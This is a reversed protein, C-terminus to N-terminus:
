ACNVFLHFIAEPTQLMKARRAADEGFYWTPVKTKPHGRHYSVQELHGHDSTVVVATTTPDIRELVAHVFREITAFVARALEIQGTHSILDPMQYKYFVFDHENLLSALVAGAAEPAHVPLPEEGFFSLNFENDLEHTMSSTLAFGQRVDEWTRLRVCAERAAHVFINQNIEVLTFLEAFGHKNAGTLRVPQGRFTLGEEIEQRSYTRVLDEVYSGGFFPLYAPFIANALCPRKFLQFLNSRQVAAELLADKLGLGRMLGHQKVASEGTFISTYTLACEIAGDERGDTVDTEVLAGPVPSNTLPQVDAHSGKPFLFASEAYVSDPRDVGLPDIGVSDLAILLGKRTM